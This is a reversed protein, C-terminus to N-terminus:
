GRSKRLLNSLHIGWIVSILIWILVVFIPVDVSNLDYKIVFMKSLYWFIISGLIVSFLMIVKIDKTGIHDPMKNFIFITCRTLLLFVITIIFASFLVFILHVYINKDILFHRLGLIYWSISTLNVLWIAGSLIKIYKYVILHVRVIRSAKAKLILENDIKHTLIKKHYLFIFILILCVQLTAVLIIMARNSNVICWLIDAMLCSYLVGISLLVWINHSYKYFAISTLMLSLTILLSGLIAIYINISEQDLILWFFIIVLLSFLSSCTVFINSPYKM